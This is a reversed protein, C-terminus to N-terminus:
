RRSDPELLGTLDEGERKLYELAAITEDLSANSMFLTAEPEGPTVVILALFSGDVVHPELANLARSGLDAFSSLRAKRETARM